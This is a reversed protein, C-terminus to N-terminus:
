SPLDEQDPVDAPPTPPTTPPTPPTTPPTPPTTPPPPPNGTCTPGGNQGDFLVRYAEGSDAGKVGRQDHDVIVECTAEALNGARDKMRVGLKYVRGNKPGQRESRVSVRKCDDALVIDPSKNGDGIDNVPEDSSAWVFEPKLDDGPCADVIDVCDSVAIDHLKHNPPWLQVTKPVLKTKTTQTITVDSTCLARDMADRLTVTHKGPTLPEAHSISLEEAACMQSQPSKVEFTATALDKCDLTLNQPCIWDSGSGSDAACEVVIPNVQGAATEVVESGGTNCGTLWCLISTTAVAAHHRAKM